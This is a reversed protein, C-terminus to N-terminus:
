VFTAIPSGLHAPDPVVGIGPTLPVTAVGNKNRVGQGAVPDTALHAHALWSAMRFADPVAAALHFAATDALATGGTDEVHMRWGVRQGFEMLWRAKTLGGVRNPKIKVGMFARSRWAELHDASTHLCEDLLIPQPVREAVQRCEELTECPQEVWGRAAISNLVQIAVGPTWAPNVDFTIREGELRNAELAEMRAIDADPDSGGIKASHTRYGASRAREISAVMGAADAGSISSNLEIEAPRDAGFLRWLPQGSVQGLIDWCAIDIASKAYPHGPLRQDM